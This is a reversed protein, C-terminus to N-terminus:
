KVSFNDFVPCEDSWRCWVALGVMGRTASSDTLVLPSVGNASGTFTSGKVEVRVHGQVERNDSTALKVWQGDQWIRWSAGSNNLIFALGLESPGGARVLVAVGAETDKELSYDVDVTYDQWNTDGVLSYSWLFNTEGTETYSGNIVRWTGQSTVPQWASSPGNDFNDSFPIAMAGGPLPVAQTSNPLETVPPPTATVVIVLPAQTPAQSTPSPVALETPMSTAVPPSSFPIQLNPSRLLLYLGGAGLGVGLILVAGIWCGTRGRGNPTNPPKSPPSGGARNNVVDSGQGGANGADGTGARSGKRESRGARAPMNELIPWYYQVLGKIQEVESLGDLDLKGFATKLEGSITSKALSLRKGIAELELGDCRLRVVQLERDTLHELRSKAEKPDIARM